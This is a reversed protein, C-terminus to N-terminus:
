LNAAFNNINELYRTKQTDTIRIGKRCEYLIRKHYRYGDRKSNLRPIIRAREMLYHDVAINGTRKISTGCVTVEPEDLQKLRLVERQEDSYMRRRYYACLYGKRGGRSYYRTSTEGGKFRNMRARESKMYDWGIKKSVFTRGRFGPHKPDPKSMYKTIYACTVDGRAKSVWVNGYRWKEGIEKVEGEGVWLIGHLHLRETRQTGLECVLWHRLGKKTRKRWRETFRRVAVKAVANAEKSGAIGELEDMAEESISLTVFWGYGNNVAEERLRQEWGKRAKRVCEACYGCPIEVGKLREDMAEPVVGGNKKTPTYRRNKMIRPNLCM